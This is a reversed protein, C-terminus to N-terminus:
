RESRCISGPRLIPMPVAKSFRSSCFRFKNRPLRGLATRVRQQREATDLASDPREPEESQNTEFTAYLRARNDSRLRDVRLNRAITFVWASASARSPDFFASKRWVSVLAEQAIDEATDAAAGQRMLMAKVRPAYFGFLAAFAARDQRSAVAVIWKAPDPRDVAEDGGGM